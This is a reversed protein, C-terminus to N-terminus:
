LVDPTSGIAGDVVPGRYILARDLLFPCRCNVPDMASLSEVSRPIHSVARIGEILRVLDLVQKQNRSEM